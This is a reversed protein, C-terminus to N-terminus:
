EGKGLAYVKNVEKKAGYLNFCDSSSDQPYILDESGLAFTRTNELQFSTRSTNSCAKLALSIV